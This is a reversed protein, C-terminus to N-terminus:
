KEGMSRLNKKQQEWTLLRLNCSTMRVSWHPTTRLTVVCHSVSRIISKLYNEDSSPSESEGKIREQGHVLYFTQVV